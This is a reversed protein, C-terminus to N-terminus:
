EYLKKFTYTTSDGIYFELYSLANIKTAVSTESSLPSLTFYRVGDIIKLTDSDGKSIVTIDKGSSSLYDKIVRNEFEDSGFVPYDSTIFVPNDGSEEIAKKLSDWQSGSSKRIGGSKTTLNIVTVNEDKKVFFGKGEGLLIGSDSESVAKKMEADSHISILNSSNGTIAGIRITKGESKKMVPDTYINEPKEPYLLPSSYTASFDGIYVTGSNKDEGSRYLAYFRTLTVPFVATDPIEAELVSPSETKDFVIRLDNGNGDKLLARIEHTFPEESGFALSLSKTNDPLTIPADLVAYAAKSEDTDETFNYEIALVPSDGSQNENSIYANGGVYDPYSLFTSKIDDASYSINETDSGSVVSIFTKANDKSVEIVATGNKHATLKGNEVSIVDPNSSIFTFPETNSVSVYHGEADFVKISLTKIEGPSLKLRDAIDIGAIEDVVYIETEAKAKGSKATIEAIGGEEATFIGDEVFGKTSTWSIEGETPRKDEAYVASLIKVQEGTFVANKENELIIGYPSTDADENKYTLGISNIVKRNETPSNVTHIKENWVTSALMNTSGGGDLNVATHCGLEEMLLALETMSMGRSEEQRGNVAVLYLTKGDESIGIASRPNYGTINHSFSTLAKGESVLIAGGGFAIDSSSIDPTIYYDFKIEDGVEFNNAFFMSSGESVALICGNEPIECPPLNRRFETIIGDEVVVELVEGGPAPSFGDNFEKTLMLIDGYYSTHKNLHRIEEYEWNPAVAMIHFDLYTMLIEDDTVAVTAMTDPNIPSQLINGDKIEIGLSITNKGANSFFDANLSAVVDEETSALVSSTESFDIGNDSKLLALGISEESLDAEIYSYSVNHGSHFEEVKCLTIGEAIPITEKYSYIESAYINSFLLATSFFLSLMKKM